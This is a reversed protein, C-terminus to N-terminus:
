IVKADVKGDRFEIEIKDDKKLEKCNEIVKGNFKTM